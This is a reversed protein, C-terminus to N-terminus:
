EANSILTWGFDDMNRRAGDDDFSAMLGTMEWEDEDVRLLVADKDPAILADGVSFEVPVPTALRGDVVYQADKDYAAMFITPDIFVDPWTSDDDMVTAPIALIVKQGKSFTM